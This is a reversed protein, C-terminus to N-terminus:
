DKNNDKSLNLKHWMQFQALYPFMSGTVDTVILCNKWQKNRDFVKPIINQTSSLIGSGVKLMSTDLYDCVSTRNTVFLFNEIDFTDSNDLIPIASLDVKYGYKHFYIKATVRN